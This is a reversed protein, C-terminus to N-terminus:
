LIQLIKQYFESPNKSLIIEEYITYEEGGIERKDFAMYGGEYYYFTATQSLSVSSNSIQEQTLMSEVIYYVGSDHLYTEDITTVKNDYPNNFSYPYINVYIDPGTFNDREYSPIDNYDYETGDYDDNVASIQYLAYNDLGSSKNHVRVLLCDVGITGYDGTIVDEWYSSLESFLGDSGWEKNIPNYSFTAVKKLSEEKQQSNATYYANKMYSYGLYYTTNGAAGESVTLINGDGNESANNNITADYYFNLNINYLATFDEPLTEGNATFKGTEKDYELNNGKRNPDTIEPYSYTNDTPNYNGRVYHSGSVNIREGVTPFQEKVYESDQYTTYDVTSAISIKYYAGNYLIYYRYINGKHETGDETFTYTMPLEPRSTTIVLDRGDDGNINIGANDLVIQKLSEDTTDSATPDEYLYYREYYDNPRDSSYYTYFMGYRVITKQDTNNIIPKGNEYKYNILTSYSESLFGYSQDLKDLYASKASMANQFQTNFAGLVILGVGVVASLILGISGAIGIAALGGSAIIAVVSVVVALAGLIIGGVIGLWNTENNANQIANIYNTTSAANVNFICGDPPLKEADSGGSITENPYVVDFIFYAHYKITTENTIIDEIVEKYSGNYYGVDYTLYAYTNVNLSTLYQLERGNNIEGEDDLIKTTKYTSTWDFYTLAKYTGPARTHTATGVKYQGAETTIDIFYLGTDTTHGTLHWYWPTTNTSYPYTYNGNADTYASAIGIASYLTPYGEIDEYITFCIYDETYEIGERTPYGKGWRDLNKLTGVKTIKAADYVVAISDWFTTYEKAWGSIHGEQMWTALQESSANQCDGYSYEKGNIATKNLPSSYPVNQSASIKFTDLNVYYAQAILNIYENNTKDYTFNSSGDAYNSNEITNVTFPYTHTGEVTVTTGYYTTGAYSGKDDNGGEAVKLMGVLGGFNTANDGNVDLGNVINDGETKTLNGELRGILGGIYYSNATDISINVNSDTIQVASADGSLKGFLGGVYMGNIIALNTTEEGVSISSPQINIEATASESNSKVKIDANSFNSLIDNTDPMGLGGIVGGVNYAGSINVDGLLGPLLVQEGVTGSTTTDYLYYGYFTGVNVGSHAQIDVSINNTSANNEGDSALASMNVSGIFGGFGTAIENYDLEASSYDFPVDTKIYDNNEQSDGVMLSAMNNSITSITSSTDNDTSDPAQVGEESSTVLVDLVNNYKVESSSVLTGIFGGVSTPVCYKWGTGLPDNNENYFIERQAFYVGKVESSGDNAGVISNRITTGGQVYGVLGGVSANGYVNGQSLISDITGGTMLGVAGGVNLVGYVSSTSSSAGTDLGYSNGLINYYVNGNEQDTISDFRYNSNDSNSYIGSETKYGNGNIENPIGSTLYGKDMNGIVGGVNQYGSIMSNNKLAYLYVDDAVEGINGIVGGVNISKYGYYSVEGGNEYLFINNDNDDIANYWRWYEPSTTITRGNRGVNTLKAAFSGEFLGVVGGVNVIRVDSVTIVEEGPTRFNINIQNKNIIEQIQRSGGEESYLFLEDADADFKGFLGGWNQLTLPFDSDAQPTTLTAYADESALFNWYTKAEVDQNNWNFDIIKNINKSVLGIAGGVNTVGTIEVEYDELNENNINIKGGAYAGIIGGVNYGNVTLKTNISDNNGDESGLSAEITGDLMKGVLVGYGSNSEILTDSLVEEVDIIIEDNNGGHSFGSITVNGKVLKAVLLGFYSEITQNNDEDTQAKAVINTVESSAISCNEITVSGGNAEGILGGFSNIYLTNTESISPSIIVENIGASSTVTSESTPEITQGVLGGLMKVAIDEDGAHLNIITNGGNITGSSM